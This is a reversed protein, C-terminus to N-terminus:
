RHGKVKTPQNGARREYVYGPQVFVNSVTRGSRKVRILWALWGKEEDVVYIPDEIQSGPYTRTIQEAQKLAEDATIRTVVYPLMSIDDPNSYFYSHGKLNGELGITLHGLVRGGLTVPIIWFVPRTESSHVLLPEGLEASRWQSTM